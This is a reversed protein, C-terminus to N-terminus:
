WSSRPRDLAYGQCRLLLRLRLRMTVGSAAPPRLSGRLQARDAERSRPRKRISPARNPEDNRGMRHTGAQFTGTESEAIKAFPETSFPASLAYRFSPHRLRVQAARFNNNRRQLVSFQRPASYRLHAPHPVRPCPLDVRLTAVCSERKKGRKCNERKM